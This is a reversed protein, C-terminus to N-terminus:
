LQTLILQQQWKGQRMHKKCNLKLLSTWLVVHEKFFQEGVKLDEKFNLNRTFPNIQSIQLTFFILKLLFNHMM